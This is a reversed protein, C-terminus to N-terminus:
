IMQKPIEKTFVIDINKQNEFVSATHVYSCERASQEGLNRLSPWPGNMVEVFLERERLMM